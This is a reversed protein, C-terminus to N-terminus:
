GLTLGFLNVPFEIAISAVTADDGASGSIGTGDNHDATTTRFQSLEDGGILLFLLGGLVEVDDSSSALDMGTGVNRDAAPDFGMIEKTANVVMGESKNDDTDLGELFIEDASTLTAGRKGNDHSLDLAITLEGTANFRIGDDDPST